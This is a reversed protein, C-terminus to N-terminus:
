RRYIALGSGIGLAAEAGRYLVSRGASNPVFIIDKPLLIPDPLKGALIKDLNIPTETRAGTIGDTRIIRVRSRASTRTPGEALALAQLVSINENTKLVFGGPKKVEGVVYIVGAPTVKVVDGPYILVNGRSDSSNLLDKLNINLTERGAPGATTTGTGDNANAKRQLAPASASGGDVVPDTTGAPQAQRMVVVTDGADESLGEAMSLVEILRKSGRIQFVGPKKVAGFVSVPHSQMDKVFVSVHPDKMYSRRLLEQIVVELERSTLGAAESSGLLPLSIQGNASVRVTRDLEPAEFVSIELLDEAGIRYDNSNAPGSSHQFLEQLRRNYEGATDTQSGSATGPIPPNSTKAEQATGVPPFIWTTFVIMLVLVPAWSRGFVIM